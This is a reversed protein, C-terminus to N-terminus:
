APGPLAAFISAASSRFRLVHDAIVVAAASYTSRQGGPYRVCEPHACGTWYAGGPGRLHRTWSLLQSAESALGARGAAMACEATEAATVWFKDAVCRVGLGPEVLEDWRGLLRSRAEEGVVAGSLVPYYWDMAWRQKPAFSEPRRAVADAVRVAAASWHERQVGLAQAVESACRVSQQLSSNAALLAFSGPVGDPGVSWAIEGGPRQYRLCWGIARDLMPWVAQLLGPGAGAQSCWWAGTAVYACVNPDRRPELVGDPLYSTCWSGDPLQARALWSFAQEVESWRGGAALAMTAEMHNWPDAHGGLYWPVMGSPLQVSAIWGATEDVEEDTLGAETLGADTLGADTLGADTLGADTLGADTLGADTLGAETLGDLTLDSM